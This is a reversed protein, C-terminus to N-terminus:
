NNESTINNNELQQLFERLVYTIETEEDNVVSFGKKLMEIANKDDNKILKYFYAM